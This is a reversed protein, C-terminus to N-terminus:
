LGLRRAALLAADRADAHFPAFMDRMQRTIGPPARDPSGADFPPEPAYEAILQVAKAYADSRMRAVLRLGFDMGATVGAGTVVPGDEVVRDPVPTAGMLALLDRVVWHGTARRGRLLGAAGLVLSGTCVSTVFRTAPAHRALFALMAPDRMAALTGTTGGPVCLVDLGPAVSDFTATPTIAIGTDTRVPETTAAVLDLREPMLGALMNHPGFVDLATFGPYLLFAIRETGHVVPIDHDDEAAMAPIAAPLLLASLARRPLANRM